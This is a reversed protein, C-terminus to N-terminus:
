ASMRGSQKRRVEEIHLVETSITISLPRNDLIKQYHSPNNFSLLNDAVIFLQPIIPPLEWCPYGVLWGVWHESHNLTLVHTLMHWSMLSTWLHETTNAMKLLGCAIREMRGLLMSSPHHQANWTRKFDGERGSLHNHPPTSEPKRLSRMYTYIQNLYVNLQFWM